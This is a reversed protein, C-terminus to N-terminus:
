GLAEHIKRWTQSLNHPQYWAYGVRAVREPDNGGSALGEPTEFERGEALDRPLNGIRSANVVLLGHAFYSAAIGSKTVVHRPYDILGVRASLLWKSVEKEPLAGLARVPRGAFVKPAIQDPGIDIIEQVELRDMGAALAAHEAAYVSKRKSPGGFIVAVPQRQALPEVWDPEGMNSFVALVELPIDSSLAKLRDYGAQSTVFGVDSLNALERAIRRQSNSTWFSARWVPGTAYVEHFITVLRRRADVGKWATLGEVLWHCLGWKAYGYGSFHLLVAESAELAQNLERASHARLATAGSPTGSAVLTSLEQGAQEAADALLKSYDGVGSISPPYYPTIQSYSGM